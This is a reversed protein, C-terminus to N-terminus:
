LLNTFFFLTLLLLLCNVCKFGDCLRVFYTNVGSFEVLSNTSSFIHGARGVIYPTNACSTFIYAWEM